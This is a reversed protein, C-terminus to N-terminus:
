KLKRIIESAIEEPKKGDVYVRNWKIGYEDLGVTRDAYSGSILLQDDESIIDDPKRPQGVLIFIKPKMEKCWEKLYSFDYQRRFHASYVLSSPYGRDMIFSIDKFNCLSENFAQSAIEPNDDFYKIM